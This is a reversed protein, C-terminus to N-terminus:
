ESLAATPKSGLVVAEVWAAAHDGGGMVTWSCGGGGGGGARCM